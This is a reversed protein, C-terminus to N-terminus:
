DVDEPTVSWHYGDDTIDVGTRTYTYGERDELLIDYSGPRVLFTFEEGVALIRTGLREEGWGWGDALACYVYWIDLTALGNHVTVPATPDVITHLSCSLDYEKLDDLTMDWRFPSEVTIEVDMLMAYLDEDEGKIDYVGPEVLINLEEGARLIHDGLRNISWPDAALDCYVHSIDYDGTHNMVTVLANGSGTWYVGGAVELTGHFGTCNIFGIELTVPDEDVTFPLLYTNGKEDAASLSYSGPALKLDARGGPAISELTTEGEGPGTIAIYAIRLEALANDLTVDTGGGGCGAAIVVAPAAAAFLRWNM